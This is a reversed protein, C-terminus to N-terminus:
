KLSALYATINHMDSDTYKDLLRRHPALKDELDAKTGNGLAISHYDGGDDYFCVNFDDLHKLNGSLREGSPLTVTM